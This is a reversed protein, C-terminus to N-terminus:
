RRIKARRGSAVDWTGARRTIEHPPSAMRRACWIALRLRIVRVHLSLIYLETKFRARGKWYFQGLRM